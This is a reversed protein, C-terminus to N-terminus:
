RVVTAHASPTLTDYGERQAESYLNPAELAIPLAQLLYQQAPM